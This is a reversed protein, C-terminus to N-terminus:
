KLSQAGFPFVEQAVPAFDVPPAKLLVDHGACRPNQRPCVEQAVPPFSGAPLMEGCSLSEPVEGRWWRRAPFVEMLSSVHARGLLVRVAKSVQGVKARPFLNQQSSGAVGFAKQPPLVKYPVGSATNHRDLGLCAGSLM